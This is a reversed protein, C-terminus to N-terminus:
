PFVQPRLSWDPSVGGISAVLERVLAPYPLPGSPQLRHTMLGSFGKHAFAVRNPVGALTAAVVDAYTKVANTCLAVDPRLERLMRRLEPGSGQVVEVSHVFPNGELLQAGLPSTVFTWRCQPTARGLHALSSTRYLVDGVHDHGLIVGSRWTAPASPRREGRFAAVLELAPGIIESGVAAYYRWPDRFAWRQPVRM